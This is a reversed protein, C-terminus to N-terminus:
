IMVFKSSLSLTVIIWIWDDCIIVQHPKLHQCIYPTVEVLTEKTKPDRDLVLSTVKPCKTPSKDDDVTTVNNYLEQLISFSATNYM